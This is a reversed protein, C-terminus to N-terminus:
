TKANTKQNDYFGAAPRNIIAGVSPQKSFRYM